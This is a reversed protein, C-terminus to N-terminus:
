SQSIEYSFITIEVKYQKSQSKKNIDAFKGKEFLNFNKNERWFKKSLFLIQEHYFFNLTSFPEELSDTNQFSLSKRVKWLHFFLFPDTQRSTKGWFFVNFVWIFCIIFFVFTQRILILRLLFELQSDFRNGLGYVTHIMCMDDGEIPFMFLNGVLLIKLNSYRLLNKFHLSILELAWISLGISHNAIIFFCGWYITVADTWIGKFTMDTLMEQHAKDKFSEVVWINSQLFLIFSSSFTLLNIYSFM